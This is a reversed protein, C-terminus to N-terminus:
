KPIFVRSPYLRSEQIGFTTYIDPAIETYTGQAKLQGHDLLILQDCYREAAQLDHLAVLILKGQIKLQKLLEWIHLQQGIDLHSTPEDLLLIPSDTVLSRALYIRQREGVSLEALRRGILHLANVEQLAKEVRLNKEQCTMKQNKHPYLGMDVFDRVSFNFSPSPAQPVLSVMQSLQHRSLTELDAGNLTIAGRTPRYIGNLLKLLTSKGAGNPGLAGYLGASFNASIHSLIQESRHSYSLNHIQLKM